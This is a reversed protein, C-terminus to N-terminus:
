LERIIEEDLMKKREKWDPMLSYLFNYFQQDHNKYLLHTLEHLIVYEICYKPAKILERNLIVLRKDQICSGWRRKMKKIQITVEPVNYKSITLYQKKYVATFIERCKQDLWKSLLKEKRSYNQKDQVYIYIYGRYYKVMEVSAEVVKLRYQKGLYRISEGSVLEKKPSVESTYCEFYSLQKVIWGARRKVMENIYAEPVKESATVVVKGESSVNLNVNKVKKRIIEFKIEKDNFRIKHRM